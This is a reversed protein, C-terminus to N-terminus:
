WRPWSSARSSPGRSSSRGSSRPSSGYNGPSPCSGSTSARTGPSSSRRGRAGYPIEISQGVMGVLRANVFSQVPTLVFGFFLFFWIFRHFAPLFIWAIVILGAATMAYLPCPSGCPPLRGRRKPCGGWTRREGAAARTARASRLGQFVQWFGILAIAITTGIGFSMWFDVSNVFFTEIAGDRAALIELFGLDHLFPNAVSHAVVGLFTGMVGWFPM